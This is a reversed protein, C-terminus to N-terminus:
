GQEQTISILNEGRRSFDEGGGEATAPSLMLSVVDRMARTSAQGTEKTTEYKRNTVNRCVEGSHHPKVSEGTM